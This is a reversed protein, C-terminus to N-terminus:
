LDEYFDTFKILRKVSGFKSRQNERNNRPKRNRQNGSM